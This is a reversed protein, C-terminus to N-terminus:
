KGMIAYFQKLESGALVTAAKEVLRRAAARHCAVVIAHQRDYGETGKEHKGRERIADARKRIEEPKWCTDYLDQLKKKALDSLEANRLNGPLPIRGAGPKKTGPLAWMRAVEAEVELVIDDPVPRRAGATWAPKGHEFAGVDPAEGAYGDTLGEVTRGADVLLSGARPRADVRGAELSARDARVLVDAFPTKRDYTINHSIGKNQPIPKHRYSVTGVYNNFFLSNANQVDLIPHPTWWKKPEQRTPIIFVGHGDLGLV